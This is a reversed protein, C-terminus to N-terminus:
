RGDDYGSPGVLRPPESGVSASIPAGPRPAQHFSFPQQVGRGVPRVTARRSSRPAATPAAQAPPHNPAPVPEVDQEEVVMHHCADLDCRPVELYGRWYLEVDNPSTTAQGPGVPPVEEPDMADVFEPTVMILLEVENNEEEVRRFAAGVWPLDALWPLGRNQAEVRTQILGALALTQGARMEVATDVWRTRLGPVTVNNITVSRAPDIESVSPRVELRINGNGLVLPVFDVRTGVERYEISVTGLSQPVVIPFEGGSNFAAPRGSVTVLTPEALVKILDYQRLAEIFGFFGRNGDVIQFRVTDGGTAAAAPPTPPTGSIPNGAVGATVASALQSVTQVVATNGDIYAWDFGASRLKTRSVEMVKVKLAIQQVGGVDIRNIVSPYFEEAIRVISDVMDSRPAYGTLYVSNNIPRVRISADPFETRLIEELQRSDPKVVIDLTHARGDEDWITLSTVGVQQAFVQIQNPSIPTARIIDENNVLLRPIKKKMTLLRSNTVIIELRRSPGDVHFVPSGAAAMITNGVSARTPGGTPQAAARSAAVALAVSVCGLALGRGAQWWARGMRTTGM